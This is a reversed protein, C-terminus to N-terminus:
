RDIAVGAIAPAIFVCGIAVPKRFVNAHTPLASKPSNVRRSHSLDHEADPNSERGPLSSQRNQRSQGPAKEAARDGMAPLVDTPNMERVQIANEHLCDLSIIESADEVRGARIWRGIRFEHAFQAARQM